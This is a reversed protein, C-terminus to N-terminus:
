DSTWTLIEGRGLELFDGSWRSWPGDGLRPDDFGLEGLRRALLRVFDLRFVGAPRFTPLPELPGLSVLTGRRMGAGAGAEAGEGLVITGAILRLGALAGARGRVAVLGRRMAEGLRPGARGEVLLAGGTMGRRSGPLAAAAGPGVDGGVRLTGGAMEAGAWAGASGKVAIEGGSMAAGAGDGVDGEVLLRGRTMGRGVGRLRSLDGEVRVEETGRGHVEFLDGLAAGERGVRLPLSAVDREGLGAIRDPSLCAADVPLPPLERAVLRTASM